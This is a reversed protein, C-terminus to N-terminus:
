ASGGGDGTNVTVSAGTNAPPVIIPRPEPPAGPETRAKLALAAAGAPLLAIVAAAWTFWEQAGWAHVTDQRHLFMVVQDVASAHSPAVAPFLVVAWVLAQATVQVTAVGLLALFAMGWLARGLDFTTGDVGTFWDHLIKRM